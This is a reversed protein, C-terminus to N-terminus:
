VTIGLKKKIDPIVATIAKEGASIAEEARSLELPKISEVFPTILFDPKHRAPQLIAIQYNTIAMTQLILTFINPTSTRKRVLNPFRVIPGIAAGSGLALGVKKAM